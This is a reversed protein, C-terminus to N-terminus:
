KVDAVCRVPLAFSPNISASVSVGGEYFSLCHAETRSRSSTWIHGFIDTSYFTGNNAGRFGSVPLTLGTKVHQICNKEWKWSAISKWRLLNTKQTFRREM